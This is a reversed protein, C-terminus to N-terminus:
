SRTRSPRIVSSLSHLVVVNRWAPLIELARQTPVVPPDDFSPAHGDTTLQEFVRKSLSKRAANVRGPNPPHRALDRASLQRLLRLASPWDILGLKVDRDLYKIADYRLVDGSTLVGRAKCARAGNFRFEIHACPGATVKSPRSGYIVCNRATRRQASYSTGRLFSRRAGHRPQIAMHQILVTLDKADRASRAPLDYAVDFRSVIHDLNEDILRLAELQPRNLTLRFPYGAAIAKSPRVYLSGCHKGIEARAPESLGIRLLIAVTDFYTVAAGCVLSEILAIKGDLLAQTAARTTAAM